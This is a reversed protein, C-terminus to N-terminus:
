LAEGASFSISVIRLLRDHADAARSGGDERRREGVKRDLRAACELMLAHVFVQPLNGRMEWQIVDECFFFVGLSSQADCTFLTETKKLTM